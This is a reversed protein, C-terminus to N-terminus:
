AGVESLQRLFPRMTQALENPHDHYPAHTGPTRKVAVGLREALRGAAQHWPRRGDDSILLQVPVPITALTRDDPLFGEFTGLEVEVFTDASALMRERLRPDLDHWGKEGAVFRWFRDLVVRVGGAALGERVLRASAERVVAPDDTLLNMVPEHLPAGRVVAPHRVVLALAFPAGSSTGFVAAPALGLAELLAAADDAQEEPSTTVWGASRPSRGNGRRDYSVVTFEDALLGSLRDFHGGDGTAGMILLM